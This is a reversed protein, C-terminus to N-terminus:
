AKEITGGAAEIKAKATESCADVRLTLARDIDGSGLVKVPLTDDRVLGTSVLLPVDVVTGADFRNLKSVNVVAYEVRRPNRFGRKIPLRNVLPLQGGEFYRKGGRGSRAGEGKTGFGGTKGQGAAIGRGRRKRPRKTGEPQSLEHLKM